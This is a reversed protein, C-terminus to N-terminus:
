PTNPLLARIKAEVIEPDKIGRLKLERGEKSSQIVLTGIGWFRAIPGQLVDVSMTEDLKISAIEHQTYGNRIVVCTSTVIYFAWRRIIAVVLLLVIAGIMWIQWGPLGFRLFLLGRFATLFTFFYLWSFQSWSPFDQWIVRARQTESM